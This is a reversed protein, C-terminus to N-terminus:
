GADAIARQGDSDDVFPRTRASGISNKGGAESKFNGGTPGSRANKPSPETGNMSRRKEHNATLLTAWKVATQFGDAARLAEEVARMAKHGRELAERGKDTLTISFAREDSALRSRNIAHRAQMRKLVEAVTSRDMGTAQGIATQSPGDLGHIVNFLEYQTTTPFGGTEADFIDAIMQNLNHFLLVNSKSTNSQVGVGASAAAAKEVAAKVSKAPATAAAAKAKVKQKEKAAPKTPKKSKSKSTSASKVM